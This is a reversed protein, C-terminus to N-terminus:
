VDRDGNRDDSRSTPDELSSRELGPVPDDGGESWPHCRCIRRVAMWGGRFLGYAEIAQVAYESCTPTFRCSPPLARSLTRQYLRILGIALKRM